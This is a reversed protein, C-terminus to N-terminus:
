PCSSFSRFRFTNVVLVGLAGLFEFGRLFYNEIKRPTENEPFHQNPLRGNPSLRDFGLASAVQAEVPEARVSKNLTEKTNKTDQHHPM